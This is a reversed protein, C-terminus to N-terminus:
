GDDTLMDPDFETDHKTDQDDEFFEACPHATQSYTYRAWLNVIEALQGESTHGTAAPPM